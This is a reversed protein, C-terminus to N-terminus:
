NNGGPWGGRTLLYDLLRGAAEPHPGGKIAAVTNPILLAGMGDAQQDPVVIEVPFGQDIEIIADDTDTIGWALQGRSVAVPM